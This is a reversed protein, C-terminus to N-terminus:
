GLPIKRNTLKVPIMNAISELDLGHASLSTNQRVFWHLAIPM